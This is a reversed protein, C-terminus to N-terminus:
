SMKRISGSFHNVRQHVAEVVQDTAKLLTEGTLDFYDSLHHVIIHIKLQMGIKYKQHLQMWMDEFTKIIDRHNPTLNINHSMEYVEQVCELFDVFIAAEPNM